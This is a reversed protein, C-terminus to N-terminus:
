LVKPGKYIGKLLFSINKTLEEKILNYTDIARITLVSGKGLFEQKAINREKALKDFKTFDPCHEPIEPDFVFHYFRKTQQIGDKMLVGDFPKDWRYPVNLKREVYHIFTSASDFNLNVFKGDMKMFKDFFSNEGFSYEPPNETFYKANKVIACVSFNGDHSRIAEPSKRIFESFIGMNSATSAPDFIEQHCFSYTFTPVVLTGDPGIVELFARKFANCLDNSSTAGEMRGMFGLNSHTFVNDGNTLGLKKFTRVIDLYNYDAM